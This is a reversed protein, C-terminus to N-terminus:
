GNGNRFQAGILELDHPYTALRLAERDTAWRIGDVESNPTFEGEEVTMAYYRVRKPRGNRDVYRVEALEPGISCHYGTEEAVERLAAQQASEGPELKGKPLSWDDYRPRHVLLVRKGDASFVVGGAAEVTSEGGNAAKRTAKSM